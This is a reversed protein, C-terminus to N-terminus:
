CIHLALNIPLDFGTVFSISHMQPELGGSDKRNLPAMAVPTAPGPSYVPTASESLTDEALPFLSPDGMQNDPLLQSEPVEVVADALEAEEEPTAALKAAPKKRVERRQKKKPAPQQEPDVLEKLVSRAEGVTLGTCDALEKPTPYDGTDSLFEELVAGFAERTSEAAM